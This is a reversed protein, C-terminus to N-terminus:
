KKSNKMTELKSEAPLTRNEQNLSVKMFKKHAIYSKTSFFGFINCVLLFYHSFHCMFVCLRINKMLIFIDILIYYFINIVVSKM